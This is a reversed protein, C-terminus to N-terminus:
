RNEKTAQARLGAREDARIVSEWCEGCASSRRLRRGAGHDLRTCRAHAAPELPHTHSFHWGIDATGDALPKGSALRAKREGAGITLDGARIREQDHVPLQLLSLRGAVTPFSKSVRKALAAISLHEQKQLAALAHAEEIPDLDVRQTNEAIMAALAQAPRLTRNIITPITSWGLWRAAAVRRHGAVIILREGDIRAVVPQLLGLGGMSAALETVDGVATRPNDPDPQLRDLNVDVLRGLPAHLSAAAHTAPPLAAPPRTPAPLRQLQPHPRIAQETVGAHELRVVADRVTALNPWGAAEALAQVTTIKEGALQATVELSRGRALWKLIALQRPRALAAEAM